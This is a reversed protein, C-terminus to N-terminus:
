RSYERPPLAVETGLTSTPPVSREVGLSLGDNNCKALVMEGLRARM